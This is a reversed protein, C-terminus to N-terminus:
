VLRVLQEALWERLDGAALHARGKVDGERLEIVDAIKAALEGFDELNKLIHLVDDPNGRGLEMEADFLRAHHRSPM